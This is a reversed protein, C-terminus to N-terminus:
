SEVCGWKGDLEYGKYCKECHGENDYYACNDDVKKCGYSTM